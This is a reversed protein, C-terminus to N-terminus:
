PFFMAISWHVVALPLRRHLCVEEFLVDDLAVGARVECRGIFDGMDQGPEPGSPWAAILGSLTSGDSAAYEYYPYIYRKSLCM